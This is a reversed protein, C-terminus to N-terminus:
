GKAYRLGHVFQRDEWTENGGEVVVDRVTALLEINLLAPFVDLYPTFPTSIDSACSILPM